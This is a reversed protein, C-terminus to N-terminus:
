PEAALESLPLTPAGEIAFISDTATSPLDEIREVTWRPANDKDVILARVGEAFDAGRIVRSVIRFETRMAEAFDLSAGRRMQEFAIAVSLPSKSRIQTLCRSAFESVGSKSGDRAFAALSALVAPLTAQSFCADIVDRHARWPPDGADKAYTALIADADEGDTLAAALCMLDSSAISHTALGLDLGDAAGVREGTLALWTGAHNPLRPLVYTAGVDPFFGIGVEPMAFQYREGAVRHSGHVSIGVGGGMVMGDILSLYPKPFARIALNLQYEKRWFALMEDHRGAQGAEYLKRIDGGACFARGGAATVVVHRVANDDKWIALTAALEDVMAETLANLAQPRNLMVVGAVGRKECILEPENTMAKTVADGLDQHVPMVVLDVGAM